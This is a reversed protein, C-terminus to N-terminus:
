RKGQGAELIERFAAEFRPTWLEEYGKANPHIHDTRDSGYQTKMYPGTKGSMCMEKLEEDNWLDVVYIGRKERLTLLKEVMEQYADSAFYTGTYFVVPCDWTGQVYEIITEIAGMVTSDDAKGTDKEERIDGVPMGQTADNTSLQVVFLDAKIDPDIEKMREVYSTKGTNALVTGCIAYKYANMGPHRERIFETMSRGDGYTVSSGLWIITKGSLIDTEDIEQASEKVTKDRGYGTAVPAGAPYLYMNGMSPLACFKRGGYAFTYGPKFSIKIKDGANLAAHKQVQFLGMENLDTGQSDCGQLELIPVYERGDGITVGLLTTGSPYITKGLELYLDYLGASGDPVTFVATTDDGVSCVADETKDYASCQTRGNERNVGQGGVLAQSAALKIGAPEKGPEATHIRFNQEM